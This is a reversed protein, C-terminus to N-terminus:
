TASRYPNVPKAPETEDPNMMSWAYDITTGSAEDWAQAMFIPAAAELAQVLQARYAPNSTWIPPLHEGAAEIAEAPMNM